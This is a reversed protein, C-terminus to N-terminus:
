QEYLGLILACYYFWMYLNSNMIIILALVYIYFMSYKRTYMLMGTYIPIGSTNSCMPM